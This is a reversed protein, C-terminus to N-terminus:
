TNVGTFQRPPEVTLDKYLRKFQRAAGQLRLMDDGEAAVLSEKLDDYTLQVLAIASKAAADELKAAERLRATLEALEAKPNM